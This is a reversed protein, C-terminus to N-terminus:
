EDDARGPAGAHPASAPDSAPAGPSRLGLEVLAERFGDLEARLDARELHAERLEVVLETIVEAQRDLKEILVSVGGRYDDPPPTETNGFPALLDEVPVGLADAARTLSRRKPAHDGRFWSYWRGRDVGSERALQVLSLHERGMADRVIREFQAAAAM